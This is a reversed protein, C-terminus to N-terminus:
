KIKADKLSKVPGLSEGTSSSGYWHKDVVPVVKGGRWTYFGNWRDGVHDNPTWKVPPALPAREISFNNMVNVLKATDAPWGAKKLISEVVLGNFWGDVLKHNMPVSASYKQAADAIPKHEPFNLMPPETQVQGIFTEVGKWKEGMAQEFSSGALGVMYTGKWGLKLMADGILYAPGGPGGYVLYNAKGNIFKTAVPTLDLMSMPVVEYIVEMGYKKAERTYGEGAKRALPLDAVMNALVVPQGKALTKIMGILMVAPHTESIGTHGVSFVLPNPNPPAAEAPSISFTIVPLNARSAEGIVGAYVSSLSDVAIMQVGLSEFKKVNAVARAGEARDDEYIVQVPHGNIGGRANLTEIFIRFGETSELQGAAGPGTMAATFGIKYPEKTATTTSTSTSCAFLALAVVLLALTFVVIKRM